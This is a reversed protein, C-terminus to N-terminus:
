ETIGESTLTNAVAELITQELIGIWFNCHHETAYNFELSTNPTNLSNV